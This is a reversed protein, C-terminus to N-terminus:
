AEKPLRRAKRSRPASMVKSMADGAERYRSPGIHAYTDATIRISSHGLVRSVVEIPVGAALMLTAASHRLDHPRLKGIKARDCAKVFDRYFNRLDIPTGIQTTFILDTDRWHEGAVSREQAQRTEHAKLKGLLQDPVHLSRRSSPTKVDGLVLRGDEGTLGRRIVLLHKRRDLDAWKLGLAEGRRLGLWLITLYLAENRDGEIAAAFTRAEKQTLARGEKHKLKPPTSAKAVNRKVQDWAIGQDLGSSLVSRIRRVASTSLGEAEKRRLLRDVDRTNLQSVRISGIAPNIHHRVAWRYSAITAPRVKRPVVMELWEDLLQAVTIRDDSPSLGDEILRQQARLKTWAEKETHASVTKKKYRGNEGRGLSIAGV